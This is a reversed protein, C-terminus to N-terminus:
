LIISEFIICTKRKILGTSVNIGFLFSVKM